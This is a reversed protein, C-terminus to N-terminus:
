ESRLAEIPSLKSAKRAPAVGFVVGVAMSVGFALLIADPTIRSPFKALSSLALSLIAALGVGIMGGMVSLLSSEILFQLLIQNPTAGLAKRLGIERTRETVSVLMINMIGIGGVVLSIAAIGGLGLTLVGLIQNVTKLIQRQDFVDFEDTKRRRQNVFYDKVAAIAPAVQSSDRVQASLSNIDRTNYLRFFADLPIFVYEDFSPGGFGGGKEEAVGVVQYTVDGIRITKGIPDIKGFLDAAIKHGLFVVREGARAEPESFWRGEDAKTNRVSQYDVTTGVVTTNKTTGRYIVKDAKTADPLIATFYERMRKLDNVSREDFPVIKSTESRNQNVSGGAGFVQLPTIIIVNAGLEEFQKSIYSQLGTGISTLLIVSGVGIIIGLMTLLARSKNTLIAKWAVKITNTVNM